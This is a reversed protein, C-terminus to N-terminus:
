SFFKVGFFVTSSVTFFSSVYYLEPLCIVIRGRQSKYLTFFLILVTMPDYTCYTNSIPPCLFIPMM